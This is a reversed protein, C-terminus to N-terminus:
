EPLFRDMIGGYWTKYLFVALLLILLGFPIYFLMGSLHAFSKDRAEFEASTARAMNMVAGPVDGTLEGNEVVNRYEPTLLDSRQLASSLRENEKMTAATALMRRALELNPMSAAAVQLCVNPPAGGRALMSMIWGFRALSEAKARGALIPVMLVLRHRAPTLGRSHWLKWLAFLGAIGAFAAPAMAITTKQVSALLTPVPPLSGGAKEQVDMSALAGQVVALSFPFASIVALLVLGYYLMKRKLAHSTHSQNSIDDCAEALFGGLEGARYTAIVDPPFVDPYRAFADSVAEGATASRAAEHLAAAM